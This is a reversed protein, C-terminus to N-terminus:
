LRGADPLLDPLSQWQPDSLAFEAGYSGMFDWRWKGQQETWRLKGLYIGEASGEFRCLVETWGIRGEVGSRTLKLVAISQEYGAPVYQSLLASVEAQQAPDAFATVGSMNGSACAQLMAGCEARLRHIRLAGPLWSLLAAGLLLVIIAPPIYSRLRHQNM